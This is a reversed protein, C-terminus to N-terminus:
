TSKEWPFAYWVNDDGVEAYFDVDKYSSSTKNILVATLHGYPFLCNSTVDTLTQGSDNIDDIILTRATATYPQQVSGDRTQWMLPELPIGLEHSLQAGPVFGGRGLALICGVNHSSQEIQEVLRHIMLDYGKWSIPRVTTEKMM